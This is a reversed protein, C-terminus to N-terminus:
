NFVSFFFCVNMSSPKLSSFFCCFFVFFVDSGSSLHFHCTILCQYKLVHFHDDIICIVVALTCLHVAYMYNYVQCITCAELRPVYPGGGFKKELEEWVERRICMALDRAGDAKEPM